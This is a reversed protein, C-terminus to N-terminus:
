HNLLVCSYQFLDLLVQLTKNFQLYMLAYSLFYLPPSWRPERIDPRLGSSCYAVIHGTLYTKDVGLTLSVNKPNAKTGKLDRGGTVFLM